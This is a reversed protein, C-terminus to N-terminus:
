FLKSAFNLNYILRMNVLNAFCLISNLNWSRLTIKPHTLSSLNIFITFELLLGDLSPAMVPVALYKAGCAASRRRQWQRQSAKIEERSNSGKIWKPLTTSKRSENIQVTVASGVTSCTSILILIAAAVYVGNKVLYCEGGLWGAAYPQRRSMSSAASLLLIVVTFSARSCWIGEEIINRNSNFKQEHYLWSDKM